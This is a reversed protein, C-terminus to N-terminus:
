FYPHLRPPTVRCAILAVMDPGTHVGLVPTLQEVSVNRVHSMAEIITKLKLAKDTDTGYHIKIDIKDTFEKVIWEKMGNIARQLGFYKSKIEYVGKPNVTIVPKIKLSQALMAAVSGIRGGRELYKLTNITYFAVSGKERLAQLEKLIYPTPFGENVMSVANEVLFGQQGALTLTDFVSFPLEGDKLINEIHSFTGSLGSSIGVYLIEDYGDEKIQNMIGEVDRRSPLSTTIKKEDLDRYVQNAHIDVGDRFEKGEIIITLPVMYLHENETVYKDSLNAASDTLIARKMM